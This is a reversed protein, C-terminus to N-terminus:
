GWCYAAGGNTVACVHFYGASIKSTELEPISVLVPSPNVWEATGNGMEGYGGSGWCYAEGSENLGCTTNGGASILAPNDFGTVLGPTQNQAAEGDGMQGYYGYGWCWTGQANILCSHNTAGTIALATDTMGQPRIPFPYTEDPTITGLEWHLNNGWCVSAGSATIACTHYDGAEVHAFGVSQPTVAVHDEAVSNGIPLAVLVLLVAMLVSLHKSM